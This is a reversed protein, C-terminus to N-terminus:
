SLQGLRGTSDGFSKLDVGVRDLMNLYLNCIPTKQELKLHRGGRITGGGGGAVLVPLDDHNHKNGDSLGSGYLIVVNDLLSREGERIDAMRQLMRAFLEMHHTNIRTLQDLYKPEKRHHSSSHHSGPADIEPYSRGSKENSFLFSAVRTTDTQFSLTMIDLMLNVHDAYLEPIGRGDPIAVELLNSFGDREPVADKFAEQHHSYSDRSAADVRREVSRLGDLYEEVKRRDEFGLRRQLDRADERVLDLVSSEASPEASRQEQPADWHPHQPPADRFLREFAQKPNLELAAPTTKSRWSIHSLYTGSYGHDGRFGPDIGMAISDVPTGLGIERAAVQDVSAAGVEPEESHKCKVGTLFGGGAPEHGASKGNCHEAALNSVVVVNEKVSELPSLIKPLQDLPEGDQPRWDNMNVGNPVYFYALRVPAQSAGSGAAKAWAARPAASDLWPLALAIGTGRLLTRRSLKASRSM